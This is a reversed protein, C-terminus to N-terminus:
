LLWVRFNLKRGVGGRVLEAIQLCLSRPDIDPLVTDILCLGYAEETAALIQLAKLGTEATHVTCGEALCLRKLLLREATNYMVILVSPAVDPATSTSSDRGPSDGVVHGLM